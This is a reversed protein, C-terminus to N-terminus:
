PTKSNRWRWKGTGAILPWYAVANLAGLVAALIWQTERTLGVPYLVPLIYHEIFGESYTTAGALERLHNELPTLPCLDGTIGIYTAWALAPLHVYAMWRWRRVLFGGVAAFAIFALHIVVILDALFSV